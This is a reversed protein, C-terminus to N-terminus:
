RGGCPLCTLSLCTSSAELERFSSPVRGCAGTMCAKLVRFETNAGFVAGGHWSGWGTLLSLMGLVGRADVTSHEYQAEDEVDLRRGSQLATQWKINGQPQVHCVRAEEWAM